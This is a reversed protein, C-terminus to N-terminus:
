GGVFGSEAVADALDLSGAGIAELEEFDGIPGHADHEVFSVFLAEAGGVMGGDGFGIGRVVDLVACSGDFVPIADGIGGEGVADLVKGGGEVVLVFDVAEAVGTMEEALCVGGFESEEEIGHDLGVDGPAGGEIDVFGGAIEEAILSLGEELLVEVGGEFLKKGGIGIVVAAEEEVPGAGVFGFPAVIVAEPHIGETVEGAAAAIDGDAFIGAEDVIEIAETEDAGEFEVLFGAKVGKLDDLLDGDVVGFHETFVGVEAVEAWAVEGVQDEDVAIGEGIKADEVGFGVAHGLGAFDFPSDFVADRIVGGSEGVPDALDDGLVAGLWLGPTRGRGALVFFSM